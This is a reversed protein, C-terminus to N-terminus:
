PSEPSEAETRVADIRGAELIYERTPLRGSGIRVTETPEPDLLGRERRRVLEVRLTPDIPFRRVRGFRERVILTEGETYIAFPARRLTTVYGVVASAAGIASLLGYLVLNDRVGPYPSSAALSTVLLYVLALGALYLAALRRVRRLGARNGHTPLQVPAFPDREPDPGASHPGNPDPAPRRGIRITRGETAM